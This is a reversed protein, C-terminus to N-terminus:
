RRVVMHLGFVSILDRQVENTGGGFTLILTGRYAREVRGQLVAEPSGRKLTGAPGMVELLLRYAQCYLETGFVKTASADAPDIRGQTLSWAVKWNILTLFELGARVRALNLRAWEQDVVRRGDALRTRRAWECVEEFLRALGGPACLAVRELNLQDVILDWGRNMEGVLADAPVRVGDYFTANTTADGITHIPSFRFGPAGTPVIFISIGRHKKAEPDTRAALWVYDADAVLSTWLKSGNIVWEDGDFVASTRLAALDTGADPESYGISFHVEGRLIRPLFAAKQAESGHRMLTPGVTNITLFPVPAGARQAEDFFIFQEVASRGQGGYEVPWGIGLWGDRGMRQAIDRYMPGGYEGNGLAAEVEPTMLGAFYARLEDRLAAQEDTPALRM